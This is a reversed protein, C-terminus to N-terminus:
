LEVREASVDRGLFLSALRSFGEARDTTLFRETGGRGNEGKSLRADIEPHRALYDVLAPAVIDAQVLIETEAPVIARM